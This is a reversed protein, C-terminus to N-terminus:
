PNFIQYKGCSRTLTRPSKIATSFFLSPGSYTRSEIEESMLPVTDQSSALSRKKKEKKLDQTYAYLSGNTSGSIVTNNPLVALSAIGEMKSRKGLTRFCFSTEIDWIKITGDRLASILNNNPLPKLSILEDVKLTNLCEGTNSDWLRLTNDMSYSVLNGNNLAKVTRINKKFDTLLHLCAGTEGDWIRITNDDAATAFNGNGLSTMSTIRQAHGHEIQLSCERAEINWLHIIKGFNCSVLNGNNLQILKCISHMPGDLIFECSQDNWVKLKEPFFLSFTAFKNDLLPAIHFASNHAHITNLCKGKASDWIKINGQQM